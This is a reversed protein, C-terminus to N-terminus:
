LLCSSLLPDRSGDGYTEAPLLLRVGATNTIKTEGAKQQSCVKINRGALCDIHLNSKSGATFRHSDFAFNNALDSGVFAPFACFVATNADAEMMESTVALLADLRPHSACTVGAVLHGVVQLAIRSIVIVLDAFDRRSSSRTLRPKASEKDVAFAM